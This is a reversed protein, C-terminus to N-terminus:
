VESVKSWLTMTSLLSLVWFCSVSIFEWSITEMLFVSAGFFLTAVIAVGTSIWGLVVNGMLESADNSTKNHQRM